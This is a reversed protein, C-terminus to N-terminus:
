RRARHSDRGWLTILTAPRLHQKRMVLAIAAAPPPAASLLAVATATRAREIHRAAEIGSMGTM